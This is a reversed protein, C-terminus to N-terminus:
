KSDLADLAELIKYALDILEVATLNSFRTKLVQAIAKVKESQNMKYEKASPVFDLEIFYDRHQSKMGGVVVVCHVIM